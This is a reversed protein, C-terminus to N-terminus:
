TMIFVYPLPLSAVSRRKGFPSSDQNVCWIGIM